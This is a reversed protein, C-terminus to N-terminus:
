FKIPFPEIGPAVPKSAPKSITNGNRKQKVILSVTEKGPNGSKGKAYITIQDGACLHINLDNYHVSPETVGIVQKTVGNVKIHLDHPKQKYASIYMETIVSDASVNYSAGCRKGIYLYKNVSMCEYVLERTNTNSLVTDREPDYTYSSDASDNTYYENLTDGNPELQYSIPLVVTYKDEDVYIEDNEASYFLKKAAVIDPFSDPTYPLITFVIAKSAILEKDTVIVQQGLPRSLDLLADNLLKFRIGNYVTKIVVPENPGDQQVIACYSVDLKSYFTDNAQDYYYGVRIDDTRETIDIYSLGEGSPLSNENSWEFISTVVSSVIEAILM